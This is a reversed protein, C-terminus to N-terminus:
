PYNEMGKFDQVTNLTSIFNRSKCANPSWLFVSGIFNKSSELIHRIYTEESTSFDRYQIYITWQTGKLMYYQQKTCPVDRENM